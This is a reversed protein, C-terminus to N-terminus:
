LCFSGLRWRGRSRVPRRPVSPRLSSAGCTNTAASGMPSSSPKLGLAAQGHRSQDHLRVQVRRYTHDGALPDASLAAERLSHLRRRRRPLPVPGQRHDDATTGGVLLCGPVAPLHKLQQHFSRAFLALGQRRRAHNGRARGSSGGFVRVQQLVHLRRQGTWSQRQLTKRCHYTPEDDQLAGDTSGAVWRALRLRSRPAFAAPADVSRRSM